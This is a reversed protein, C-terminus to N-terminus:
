AGRGWRLWLEFLTAHGPGPHLRLRLRLRLRMYRVRHRPLQRKPRVAWVAFLVATLATAIAALVPWDLRALWRVAALAAVAAAIVVAGSGSKDPEGARRDTM